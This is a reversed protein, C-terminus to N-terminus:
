SVLRMVDNNLGLMFIGLLLSLGAWQLGMALKDPLSRRILSEITLIMIQGGDLVPIPLLNFFALAISILGLYEAYATLGSRVADGAIAAIGVPGSLGKAAETSETMRKVSTMQLGVLNKVRQWGYSMSDVFGFKVVVREPLAGLRVGVRYVGDSEKEPTLVVTRSPTKNQWDRVTFTVPNAESAKVLDITQQPHTVKVGNIAEIADTAKLGAKEAPSNPVVGAILVQKVQPRFGLTNLQVREVPMESLDLPAEFAGRPGDFGIQVNAEGAHEMLQTMLESLMYTPEGDVSVVRDGARVGMEALQSHQPPTDLKTSFNEVGMLGVFAFFVIALIFNTFPGAFYILIQKWRDQLDLAHATEEPTLPPQDDPRNKVTLPLVYGGIPLCGVQYQTDGIMKKWIPRGMGISFKLVRVKFVRMMVFHGAEHLGALIGISLLFGVLSWIVTAM